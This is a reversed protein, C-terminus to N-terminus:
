PTVQVRAAEQLLPTTVIVTSTGPKIDFAVKGRAKDGAPVEGSGIQDDIVLETNASRGDADKAKFYLPNSSTEGKDTEWLVDLILYGGNTAPTALPGTSAVPGYAASVITIRAVNGNGMDATFPEGVKAGTAAEAANTAAPAASAATTAAPAAAPTLAPAPRTANFIFGFVVVVGTVILAVKKHQDYGALKYGHKDTQKNTLILILDVLVWIGAGGATVLKLIGTGIKGLYFRDVGFVGVILSLLWATLFSKSGVASQQGPQPGQFATPAGPYASPAGPYATPAGPYASPAGAYPAPAPPYTAKPGVPPPTPQSM